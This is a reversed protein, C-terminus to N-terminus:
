AGVPRAFFLAVEEQALITPDYLTEDFGCFEFGCRRYFHIAPYNVNQTELWVSARRCPNPM